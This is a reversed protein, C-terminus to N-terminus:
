CYIKKLKEIDKSSLGKAGGVKINKELAVITPKGNKSFKNGEYHMLSNYDYGDGFDKVNPFKDFQHEHGHKINERVIRVYKDRDPVMHMHLFGLAHLLIHQIDKEEM